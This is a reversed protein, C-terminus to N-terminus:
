FSRCVLFAEFDDRQADALYAAFRNGDTPASAWPRHFSRSSRMLSTFEREDDATPGRIYVGSM